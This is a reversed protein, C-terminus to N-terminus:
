HATDVGAPPAAQPPIVADAAAERQAKPSVPAKRVVRVRVKKRGFEKAAARSPIFIDIRDGVIKNGTDQVVYEGSYPGANRVAIVTGIPLVSPDAAVTRGAKTVTESATEGGTSYATAVFPVWNSRFWRRSAEANGGFLVAAAALLLAERVMRQFRLSGTASRVMAAMNILSYFAHGHSV